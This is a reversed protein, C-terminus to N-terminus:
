AAQRIRSRVERLVARLQPQTCPKALVPRAPLQDRLRSDSRWVGGTVFVVREALDPRTQELRAYIQPGSLDPLRVDLFVIEWMETALRALADHGTAAREVAFGEKGLMHAIAQAVDPDDDVILAPLTPAQTQLQATPLVLTFVAGRGQESTATLEGGHARAIAYSVSLGLGTGSAKTSFFPDFIRPLVDPPIGPGSDAVRVALRDDIGTVSVTLRMSAQGGMAQLANTLLNLLVQQVQQRDALAPPLYPDYRTELVVQQVDHRILDVTEQTIAVLDVPETHLPHPRAFGLVGQVIAAIRRAQQEVRSLARRLGAEDLQDINEMQGFIATLANNTEHAIGAAMEGVAALRDARQLQSQFSREASVDQVMSVIAEISGDGGHLANSSVALPL